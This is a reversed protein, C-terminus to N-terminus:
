GRVEALLNEMDPIIFKGKFTVVVNKKRLQSICTSVTERTADLIDALDQQTFSIGIKVGAATRIGYELGMFHLQHAVKQYTVALAKNELAHINAKLRKGSVRLLDKYLEPRAELENVFIDHNLTYIESDTMAEYYYEDDTESLNMDFVVKYVYSLPFVSYHQYISQVGISGDPKIMYRKIFGIDVISLKQQDDSRFLIEGKSLKIRSGSRILKALESNGQNIMNKNYQISTILTTLYRVDVTFKKPNSM